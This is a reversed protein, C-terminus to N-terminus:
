EVAIDNSNKKRGTKRRRDRKSGRETANRNYFWRPLHDGTDLQQALQGGRNNNGDGGAAATRAPLRNAHTRCRVATSFVVAHTSRM